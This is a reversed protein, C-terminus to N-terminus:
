ETEQQFPKSLLVSDMERKKWRPSTKIRTSNWRHTSKLALLVAKLQLILVKKAHEPFFSEDDKERHNNKGGQEEM